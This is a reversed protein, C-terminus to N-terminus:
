AHARKGTPRVRRVVREPRLREAAVRYAESKVRPGVAVVEAGEETLRYVIRYAELSGFRASMHGQLGDLGVAHERPEWLSVLLGYPAEPRRQIEVLALIAERQAQPPLARVDDEVAPHLTLTM